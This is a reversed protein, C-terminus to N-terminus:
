YCKHDAQEPMRESKSGMGSSGMGSSGMGRFGYWWLDLRQPDSHFHNESCPSRWELIQNSTGTWSFKGLEGPQQEKALTM